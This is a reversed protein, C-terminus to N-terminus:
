HMVICITGTPEFEKWAGNTKRLFSIGGSGCLSGCDSETAVMALTKDSNFGVASVSLLAKHPYKRNFRKWGHGPGKSFLALMEEYSILRHSFNVKSDVLDWQTQNVENYNAVVPSLMERWQDDPEYCNKLILTRQKMVALESGAKNSKPSALVAAYVEYAELVEYPKIEQTTVTQAYVMLPCLFFLLYRMPIGRSSFALM